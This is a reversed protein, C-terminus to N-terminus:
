VSSFPSFAEVRVSGFVVMDDILAVTRVPVIGRTVTVVAFIIEIRASRM